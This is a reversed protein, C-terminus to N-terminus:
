WDEEPVLAFSSPFMTLTVTAISEGAGVEFTIKGGRPVLYEAGNIRLRQVMLTASPAPEGTSVGPPRGVPMERVLLEVDCREPPQKM